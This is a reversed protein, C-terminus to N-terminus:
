PVARETIVRITGAGAARLEAVVDILKDAALDRDAALKIEVGETEAQRESERAVYDAASMEVGRSRMTGEATVYLADPPESGDADATSIFSIESDIPPALTGAILFFILMLFVINILAITSEGKRSPRPRPLKM